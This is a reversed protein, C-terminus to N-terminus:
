NALTVVRFRRNDPHASRRRRGQGLSESKPRSRWRWSQAKREGCHCDRAQGFDVDLFFGRAAAAAGPHLVHLCCAKRHLHGLPFVGTFVALTM